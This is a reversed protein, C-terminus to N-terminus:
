GSRRWYALGDAIAGRERELESALARLDPDSVEQLSQAAAERLAEALRILERARGLAREREGPQGASPLLRLVSDAREALTRLEGALRPLEGVPAGADRAATLTDLAAPVAAALEARCAYVQRSAGGSGLARVQLYRTRTVEQGATLRQVWGSRLRALRRRIRVVALGAGGAAAAALALSAVETAVM